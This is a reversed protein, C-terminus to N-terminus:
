AKRFQLPSLGCHKKFFNSFHTVENFGLAYAIEKVSWSSHRLLIKAEQLVRAGILQTTTKQTTEKLTSNLHNVHISLQRAFDSATRLAMQQHSEDIPFQRELLELFLSAIRKSANLPQHEFNSAPEMKMAYHLLEFVLNRLVDYKHIYDSAIEELMREFVGKLKELQVESLEYIHTGEPRFVSYHNLNGFQHFFQHTFICFYGGHIKETHEWKYPIQPNSFTLAQKKVEVVKDAFHVKGNGAVLTIKYFDRKQYPVPKAHSGVFPDLKFVNFHGIENRLTDPVWNLKRLYFDELKEPKPM